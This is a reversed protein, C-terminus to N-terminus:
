LTSPFRDVVRALWLVVIKTQLICASFIHLILARQAHPQGDPRFCNVRLAGKGKLDGQGVGAALHKM